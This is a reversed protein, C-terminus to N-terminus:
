GSAVQEPSAGDPRIPVALPGIEAELEAANLRAKTALWNKPALELLRDRPWHALVRIMDRLYGEPELGHLRATAIMTFLHGASEGHDDSGVFLWAKRGVAIRRLERESRNNDMLLRGDDLVRMLASKQRVTYGLASRLAGRQDRVKEYEAAAWEFFSVMHPRLHRSRLRGIEEPPKDRWTADLEFMRGIRVLAERGVVDKAFASEWYKRRAHVWCGLEARQEPGEEDEAKSGGFLVDFVSKADAQVYGSRGAFMAAVSASTEKAQYEFFIADRDAVMVFYHGRACGQQKREPRGNPHVRVGTADTAICFASRLAEDRMAHVITSGFTAGLDEMWRCLTGRDIPVGDRAFRDSIRNLPLGDCHKDVAVHALLSPAALSRPFTEEALATTELSSHGDREITRYKARAIVLCRMGGRQWAFKSSTEFDIREARGEAVLQELVPDLLEVRREELKLSRPNRRGKPRKKKDGPKSSDESTEESQEKGIGLTDALADLEALRAAFELELQTTDVREAKAVFMRRKLLELELRLQEHSARLLDREKELEAIRQSAAAAQAAAAVLQAELMAVRDADHASERVQM